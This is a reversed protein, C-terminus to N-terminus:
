TMEVALDLFARVNVPTFRGAPFVFYANGSPTGYAPLVKVLDQLRNAFDPLLAIGTGQAALAGLTQMDDAKVRSTPTLRFSKTGSTLELLSAPVRNHVMVSHKSLDEPRKPTGHAELYARSAFLRLKATGVKRSQLSSDRMPSARVALDIREALLDLPTNTVVLEVSVDPYRGLFRDVIPPMIAAAIDPPATIRLTGSPARGAARLEEEGAELARLAEICHAFYTEGAPTVDMRRTSRRILTVGLREELRAMKASVTTTPMGLQRAAASFGGVQVVKVFVDIGDLIMPQNHMM